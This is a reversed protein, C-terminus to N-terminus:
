NTIHKKVKLNILDSGPGAGLAMVYHQKKLSKTLTVGRSAAHGGLVGPSVCVLLCSILDCCSLYRWALGWHAPRQVAVGCIFREGTSWRNTHTCLICLGTRTNTSKAHSTHASFDAYTHKFSHSTKHAYSCSVSLWVGWVAYSYQVLTMDTRQIGSNDVSYIVDFATQKQVTFHLRICVPQMWWWLTPLWIVAYM